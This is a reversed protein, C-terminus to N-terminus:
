ARRRLSRRADIRRRMILRQEDAYAETDPQAERKVETEFFERMEPSPVQWAQRKPKDLGYRQQYQAFREVDEVQYRDGAWYFLVRHKVWFVEVTPERHDPYETKFSWGTIEVGDFQDGNWAEVPESAHDHVPHVRAIRSYPLRAERVLPLDLTQDMMAYALGIEEPSRGALGPNGIRRRFASDRDAELFRGIDLVFEGEYKAWNQYDPQTDAWIAQVLRRDEQYQDCAAKLRARWADLLGQVHARTEGEPPNSRFREFKSWPTEPNLTEYWWSLAAYDSLHDVSEPPECWAWPDDRMEGYLVDLAAKVPAVVGASSLAKSITSKHIPGTIGGLREWQETFWAEVRRNQGLLFTKVSDAHAFVATENKMM